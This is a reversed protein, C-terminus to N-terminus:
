SLSWHPALPEHGSSAEAVLAGFFSDKSVLAWPEDMLEALTLKRRRTLPTKASTLVAFPDHL